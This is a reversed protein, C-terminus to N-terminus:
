LHNWFICEELMGQNATNETRNTQSLMYSGRVASLTVCYKYISVSHFPRQNRESNSPLEGRLHSSKLHKSPTLTAATAASWMGLGVGSLNHWPLLFWLPLSHVPPWLYIAQPAQIQSELGQLFSGGSWVSYCLIVHNEKNKDCTKNFLFSLYYDFLSSYCKNWELTHLLLHSFRKWWASASQKSATVYSM